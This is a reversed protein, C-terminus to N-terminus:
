LRSFIGFDKLAQTLESIATRAETDITTGGNPESPMSVASWGSDYVLYQKMSRDFVIMGETPSIYTWRSASNVALKGAKDSWDGNANTAVIWCQGDNPSVPRTSEQSEVVPHMIADVRALADNVFFEKQAQGPFLFPLGYRPSASSYSVPDAM